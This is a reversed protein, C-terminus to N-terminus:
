GSDGLERAPSEVVHFPGLVTSSTAHRAQRAAEMTEQSTWFGIAICDENGERVTGRHTIGAAEIRPNM